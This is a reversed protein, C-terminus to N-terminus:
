PILADLESCCCKVRGGVEPVTVTVAVIVFTESSSTLNRTTDYFTSTQTEYIYKVFASLSKIFPSCNFRNITYTNYSDLYTQSVFPLYVNKSSLSFSYPNQKMKTQKLTPNRRWFVRNKGFGNGFFTRTSLLLM